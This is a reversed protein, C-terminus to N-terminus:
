IGNEIAVDGDWDCVVTKSGQPPLSFFNDSWIAEPALTGDKKLAKLVIQFAVGEGSNTVKFQNGERELSLQAKPLNKVFGLDAYELIPTKYWSSRAWDHVNGRAPIAYFNDTDGAIFVFLDRGQPLLIDVPVSGSGPVTISIDRSEILASDAGYISIRSNITVAELSSNVAHLTRHLRDCLIQVSECSKKVGYYGATPIGYWDWLQWYLSPCASNIMWQILGTCRDRRIRFAEFMARTGDYDLAQARAVFQQLTAAEGFQGAIAQQMAGTDHMAEAAVTCYRDWAPGLPWIEDGLIRELSEMQPINMGISTETNFGKASGLRGADDFWYEPGVYEYPGVMKNGSPGALSALGSAACVYPRNDLSAMAALYEPELEPNPMRDSGAFWAIVSPHNRLWKIQDCFYRLALKNMEPGQICGYFRDHPAGCYNEWEWQCSWGVLAVMGLSDCLEYVYQDKGWINEFRITNLNAAAALEMQHRIGERTDGLLRDDTWGGGLLLMKHGNLWYARHGNEDLRSEIKRIGFVTELTDATCGGELLRLSMKYLNPEGLDRSWWLRPNSIHVAAPITVESDSRPAMTVPYSFNLGDCGGELLGTFTSEGPNHLTARIEIDASALDDSLIPNVFVDGMRVSGTCILTVDRVLGMSADPPAPNWDVFGINLDGPRAGELSVELRNHRRMLPGVEYERVAFVGLTTDPTSITQGNLRITARYGLGDFRLCYNLSPDNVSFRLSYKWIGKFYDSTDADAPLAGAESLVGAVTSPVAAKWSGSGGERSLSWGVRLPPRSGPVSDIKIGGQCSATLIMIVAIATNKLLSGSSRM